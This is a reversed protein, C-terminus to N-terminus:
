GRPIERGHEHPRVRHTAMINEVRLSLITSRTMKNRTKKSSPEAKGEDGALAVVEDLLARIKDPLVKILRDEDKLLESLQDPRRAFSRLQNFAAMIAREHETTPNVATRALMDLGAFLGFQSAAPSNSQVARLLREM